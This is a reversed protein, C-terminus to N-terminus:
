GPVFNVKNYASILIMYLPMCPPYYMDDSIERRDADVRIVANLINIVLKPLSLPVFETINLFSFKLVAMRSDAESSPCNEM